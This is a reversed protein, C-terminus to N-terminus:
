GREGRRGCEQSRSEKVGQSRVGASGSRKVERTSRTKCAEQQRMSVAMERTHEIRVRWECKRGTYGKKNVGVCMCEIM